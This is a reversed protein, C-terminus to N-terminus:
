AMWQFAFPNWFKLYCMYWLKYFFRIDLDPEASLDPFQSEWSATFDDYAQQSGCINIMLNEFQPYITRNLDIDKLLVAGASDKVADEWMLEFQSAGLLPLAAILIIFLTIMKVKM